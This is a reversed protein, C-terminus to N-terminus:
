AAPNATERTFQATQYAHMVMQNFYWDTAYFAKEVVDMTKAPLGLVGNLADEVHHEDEGVHLELFEETGHGADRIQQLLNNGCYLSLGERHLICALLSLPDVRDMYYYQTQYLAMTSYHEPFDNIQFGLKEVDNKALIEHQKEEISHQIFYQHWDDDSITLRSAATSTLRSANCLFYYMQAHWSAVFTKQDWPMQVLKNSTEVLLEDLHSLKEKFPRNM